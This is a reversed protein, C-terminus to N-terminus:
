VFTSSRTYTALPRIRCSVQPKQTWLYRHFLDQKIRDLETLKEATKIKRSRSQSQNRPLNFVHTFYEPGYMVLDSLRYAKQRDHYSLHTKSSPILYYPFTSLSLSSIKRSPNPTISEDPQISPRRSQGDSEMNATIIPPQEITTQQETSEESIDENLSFKQQVLPHRMRTAVTAALTMAPLSSNNTLNTRAGGIQPLSNHQNISNRRLNSRFSQRASTNQEKLSAISNRTSGLPIHIAQGSKSVYISNKEEPFELICDEVCDELTSKFVQSCKGNFILVKIPTQEKMASQPFDDIDINSSQQKTISERRSQINVKPMNSSTSSSPRTTSTSQSDSLVQFFLFIVNKKQSNM